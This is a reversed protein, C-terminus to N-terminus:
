GNNKQELILKDIDDKTYIKSANDHKNSMVVLMINNENGCMEIINGISDYLACESNPKYDKLLLENVETIPVDVM